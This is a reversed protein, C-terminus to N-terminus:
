LSLRWLTKAALAALTILFAVLAQYERNKRYLAFQFSEGGSYRPTLAPILQPVRARYDDYGPLIKALHREEEEVVPLYWLLFFLVLLAGVALSGGAVAFGVGVTLTGVYLPNRVHAYPGSSALKQNKALHGAAWARLALGAAAITVGALMTTPTPEAFWLFAAMVLFGAPVRTRAAIEAYQKPFPM